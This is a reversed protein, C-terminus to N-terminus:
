QNTRVVKVNPLAKQLAQVGADTVGATGVLRLTRLTAMGELNELGADTVPTGSLDLEQLHDLKKIVVLDANRVKTGHLDVIVLIGRARGDAEQWGTVGGLAAVKAAITEEGVNAPVDPNVRVACTVANSADGYGNKVKSYGVTFKATKPIGNEPFLIFKDDFAGESKMEAAPVEKVGVGSRPQCEAQAAYWGSAPIQGKVRYKVKWHLLLYQAGAHTEVEVAAEPDSLEVTKEPEPTAAPNNPTPHDSPTEKSTFVGAAWLGGVVALALVVVGGAVGALLLVNSNKAAKRKKGAKRRPAQHEGSDEDDDPPRQKLVKRAPPRGEAPAEAADKKRVAPTAAPQAAKRVGAPAPKRPADAAPAEAPVRFGTGCKPCKVAKGPALPPTFKLAAHCSPCACKAVSM